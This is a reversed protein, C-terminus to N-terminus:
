CFFTKVEETQLGAEQIAQLYKDRNETKTAKGSQKDSKEYVLVFDAFTDFVLVAILVRFHHIIFTPRNDFM